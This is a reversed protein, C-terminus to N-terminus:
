NILTGSAIAGPTTAQATPANPPMDYTNTILVDFAEDGYLLEAMVAFAKPLMGWMEVFEVKPMKRPRGSLNIYGRAEMTDYVKNYYDQPNAGDRTAAAVVANTFRLRNTRKIETARRIKEREAMTQLALTMERKLNAHDATTQDLKVGLASFHNGLRALDNQAAERNLRNIEDMRRGLSDERKAIADAMTNAIVPAIANTLAPIMTTMDLTAPATTQSMLRQEMMNFAAIYDEKFKAAKKGTFGMALFTFGDRTMLTMKRSQSNKDLYSGPVFNHQAFQESCECLQVNRLVTKHDKGFKEAVILSTTMPKGDVITVLDAANAPIIEGKATFPVAKGTKKATTTPGTKFVPQGHTLVSYREAWPLMAKIARGYPTKAKALINMSELTLMKRQTGGRRGVNDFLEPCNSRSMTFSGGKDPCQNLAAAIRMGDAKLDLGHARIIDRMSFGVKHDQEIGRIRNGNYNFTIISM